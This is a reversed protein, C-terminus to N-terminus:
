NDGSRGLQIANSCKRGERFWNLKRESPHEFKHPEMKLSVAGAGHVPLTTRHMFSAALAGTLAGLGKAVFDHLQGHRSPVLHQSAELLGALGIVLLVIVFRHKPYGLGFAGGILAFAIFREVDAPAGLTPRLQIPSLTSFAVAVVLLWAVWRFLVTIM